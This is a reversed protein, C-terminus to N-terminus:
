YPVLGVVLRNWLTRFSFEPIEQSKQSSGSNGVFPFQPLLSKEGHGTDLVINVPDLVYKSSYFLECFDLSFMSQPPPTDGEGQCQVDFQDNCM